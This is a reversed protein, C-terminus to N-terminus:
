ITQIWVMSTWIISICYPQQLPFHFLFASFCHWQSHKGSSSFFKNKTILRLPPPPTACHAATFECALIQVHISREPLKVSLKMWMRVCVKVLSFLLHLFQFYWLTHTHTAAPPQKSPGGLYINCMLDCGGYSCTLICKQLSILIFAISVKM